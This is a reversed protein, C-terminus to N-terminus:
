GVTWVHSHGASPCVWLAQGPFPSQAQLAPVSTFSLGVALEKRQLAVMEPSFAQSPVEKVPNDPTFASSFLCFHTQIPWM